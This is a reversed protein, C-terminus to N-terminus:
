YLIRLVIISICVDNGERKDVLNVLLNSAHDDMDSTLSSFAADANYGFTMIRASNLNTPLFDKLWFKKTKSETWTTASHGQLGHVAVVSSTALTLQLIECALPNLM